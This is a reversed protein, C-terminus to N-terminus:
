SVKLHNPRNSFMQWDEMEQMQNSQVSIWNLWKVTTQLCMNQQSTIIIAIVILLSQNLAQDVLMTSQTKCTVNCFCFDVGVSFLQFVDPTMWKYQKLPWCRLHVKEALCSWAIAAKYLQIYASLFYVFCIVCDYLMWMLPLKQALLWTEM